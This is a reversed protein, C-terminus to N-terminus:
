VVGTENLLLRTVWAGTLEYTYYSEEDTSVFVPKFIPNVALGTGTFHLGNWPGIRLKKVSGRRLVFQPLGVIDIGYTYEGASPDGATKWATLYRNLTNNLGRGMNMGALLTDSPYDFSQWVYDETTNLNREDMLVFNGSDLLKAVSNEVTKSANSSWLINKAGTLLVLNGDAAITLVVNSDTIPNQRNAVWVVTKQYKKYWIGLFSHNSGLPTFFGLEFIQGSSILTQNGTISQNLTITDLAISSQLDSLSILLFFVILLLIKM